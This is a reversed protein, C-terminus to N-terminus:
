SRFRHRDIAEIAEENPWYFFVPIGRRLLRWALLMDRRNPWGRPQEIIAGSVMNKRVEGVVSATARLPPRELKIRHRETFSPLRSDAIVGIEHLDSVYVYHFTENMEPRKGIEVAGMSQTDPM